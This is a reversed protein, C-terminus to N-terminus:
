DVSPDDDCANPGPDRVAFKSVDVSSKHIVMGEYESNEMKDMFALLDEALSIMGESDTNDLCRVARSDKKLPNRRLRARLARFEARLRPAKDFDDDDIVKFQASARNLSSRLPDAAILGEVAIKLNGYANAFDHAM